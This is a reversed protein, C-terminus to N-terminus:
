EGAAEAGRAAAVGAEAAETTTTAKEAAAAAHAAQFRAPEYYVGSKNTDILSFSPLMHGGHPFTAMAQGKRMSGPPPTNKPKGQYCNCTDYVCKEMALTVLPVGVIGPVGGVRYAANFLHVVMGRQHAWCFGLFPVLAASASLVWADDASPGIGDDHEAM